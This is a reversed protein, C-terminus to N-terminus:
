NPEFGHMFVNVPPLFGEVEFAGIDCAATPRRYGRQDVTIGVCNAAPIVNVAPSAAAPRVTSTPGGHFAAAALQPDTNNALDTAIYGTSSGRSQVVNYGQSVFAGALDVNNAAANGAILSNKLTLSGSIVQIGGGTSSARNYAVTANTLSVSATLNGVSQLSIGGGGMAGALNNAITSNVINATAVFVYIGGGEATATNGSVISNSLDLTSSSGVNQIDVGGGFHARNGMITSYRIDLAGGQSAIGGGFRQSTTAVQNGAITSGTIILLRGSAHRIGGGPGNSLNASIRSDSITSTGTGYDSLGGGEDVAANDVVDTDQLLYSGAAIFLGGGRASARNDRVMCRVLILNGSSFIGGGDGAFGRQIVTDYLTAIVGPAITLVRVADGGDLPVARRGRLTVNRTIGLPSALVIPGELSAAFEITDGAAADALAQRLSGPGANALNTVTLTAAAAPLAAAAALLVLLLTMACRMLQLTARSQPSRLNCHMTM